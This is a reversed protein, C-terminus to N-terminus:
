LQRSSSTLCRWRTMSSTSSPPLAAWTQLPPCPPHPPLLSSLHLLFSPPHPILSPSFHPLILSPLHRILSPLHRILSPSFHPLSHPILTLSPLFSSHTLSPLFSSHPNILSPILFPILFSPSHTSLM